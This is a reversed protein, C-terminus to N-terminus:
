AAKPQPQAGGAAGQQRQQALMQMQQNNQQQKQAMQEIQNKQSAPTVSGAPVFKALSTLSKLVAQGVDSTAGVKPLLDQLQQIVMGLQQLGAAEYGKNPTPQTAGSAGFPAQQGQGPPVAATPSTQPM